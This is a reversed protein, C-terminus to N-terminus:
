CLVYPLVDEQIHLTRHQRRNNANFYWGRTSSAETPSSASSSAYLPVECM